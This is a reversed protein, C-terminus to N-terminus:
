LTKIDFGFLLINRVLFNLLILVLMIYLYVPRLEMGKIKGKSLRMVTQSIFYIVYLVVGYIAAPHYYIAKLINGKFLEMFARTGGCGPCYAGFLLIFACVPRDAMNEKVALLYWIGFLVAPVTLICMLTYIVTDTDKDWFEQLKQKVRKKEKLEQNTSQNTEM